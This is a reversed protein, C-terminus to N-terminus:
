KDQPALQIEELDSVSQVVYPRQRPLLVQRRAGRVDLRSIVTSLQTELMRVIDERDEEIETDMSEDVQKSDVLTGFRSRLEGFTLRESSDPMLLAVQSDEMYGGLTRKVEDGRVCGGVVDMRLFLTAIHRDLESLSMADLLSQVQARERGDLEFTNWLSSIREDNQDMGCAGCAASFEVNSVDRVFNYTSTSTPALLGGIFVELRDALIDEINGPILDCIPLEISEIADEELVANLSDFRQEGGSGQEVVAGGEQVREERPEDHHHVRNDNGAWEEEVTKILHLRVQLFATVGLWLPQVLLFEFLVSTVTAIGWAFSTASQFTSGYIVALAIAMCILVFMSCYAMFIFQRPLARLAQQSRPATKRGPLELGVGATENRESATTMFASRVPPLESPRSVLQGATELTSGTARPRRKGLEEPTRPGRQEWTRPVAEQLQGYDINRSPPIAATPRPEIPPGPGREDQGTGPNDVAEVTGAVEVRARRSALRLPSIGASTPRVEVKKKNRKRRDRQAPAVTKFVVACMPLVPILILGTFIGIALMNGDPMGVAGLWIINLCMCAVLHVTVCAIRSARDYPDKPQRFFIGLIGHRTQLLHATRRAWLDLFLSRFQQELRKTAAHLYGRQFLTARLSPTYSKSVGIDYYYGYIMLVIALFCAVSVSVIVFMKNPERGYLVAEATLFLDSRGLDFLAPRLLGAFDTTHFCACELSDSLKGVAICGASKWEQNDVDWYQCVPIIYEGAEEENVASARVPISVQLPSQLEGTLVAAGDLLQVSTINTLILERESLQRETGWVLLQADVISLGQPLAQPLIVSNCVGELCKTSAIVVREQLQKQSFRGAHHELNETQIMLPAEYPVRGLMRAHGLTTVLTHVHDYMEVGGASRRPLGQVSIAQVIGSLTEGLNQSASDSVEKVRVSTQLLRQVTNLGTQHVDQFPLDKTDMAPQLATSLFTVSEQTVATISVQSLAQMLRKRLEVDQRRDNRRGAGRRANVNLQNLIAGSAGVIMETNGVGEAESVLSSLEAPNPLTQEEENVVNIIIVASATCSDFSNCVIANLGVTENYYGPKTTPSLLIDLKNSSIRGSLPKIQNWLAVQYVYTLPLNELTDIWQSCELSFTTTLATGYTPTSAFAGGVPGQDVQITLKSFGASEFQCAGSLEIIFTQGRVLADGLLVLNPSVLNTSRKSPDNLDVNGAAISWAYSPNCATSRLPSNVEVQGTLVLRDGASVKVQSVGNLTVSVSSVAGLM